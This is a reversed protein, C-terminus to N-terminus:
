MEETTTIMDNREKRHFETKSLTITATVVIETPTRTSESVLVTLGCTPIKQQEKSTKQNLPLKAHYREVRKQPQRLHVTKSTFSGKHYATAYIQM